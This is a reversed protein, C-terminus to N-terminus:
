ESRVTIKPSIKSNIRIPIYPELVKRVVELTVTNVYLPLEKDGPDMVFIGANMFDDLIKERTDERECEIEVVYGYPPLLYERRAKLEDEFFKQWGQSLFSATKMGSRRAQVLVKRDSNEMRGMYYSNYLMRFVNYRTNYEPRWLDLDLDLWAVLGPNIKECLELGKHTSLILGKMQSLKSNEDYVHFDNSYRSVVKSLAEIGPRKGKFFKHGCFECEEPLEQLHGCFKCCLVKGDTEGRMIGGCKGCKISQGCKECFVESSEGKRNLIWIVNRKQALTKLTHKILSFTLPIKGEIGDFEEKRSYKIDVLIINKREPIIKQEPKARAFTKLSPMRGATILEANLFQARRGALSRASIRPSRSFIYSPSAEDEVIIKQPSLPAFIGSPAAAVIRYQGEYVDQWEWCRKVAPWLLAEHQLHEPLRSYFNKALAHNPFLILTREPKELENMFFNVREFDFPSFNNVEHFESQVESIEESYVYQLGDLFKQSSLTMFEENGIVQHPLISKLVAGAGCMSVKGSWIALDLIDPPVFPEDYDIIGEVPKIKGDFDSVSEGLVFGVHLSKRVDVIVRTGPTINVPSSYTLNNLSMEPICVELRFLATGSM